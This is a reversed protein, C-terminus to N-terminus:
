ARARPRDRWARHREPVFENAVADDDDRTGYGAVDDLAADRLERTVQLV